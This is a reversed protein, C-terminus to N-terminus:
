LPDPNTTKDSRLKIGNTKYATVLVCRTDTQLCGHLTMELSSRFARPLSPDTASTSFFPSAEM